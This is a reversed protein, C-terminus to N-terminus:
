VNTESRPSIDREWGSTRSGSSTPAPVLLPTHRDMSKRRKPNGQKEAVAVESMGRRKPVGSHRAADYRSAVRVTSDPSCLPRCFNSV